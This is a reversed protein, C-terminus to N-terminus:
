QKTHLFSEKREKWEQIGAKRSRCFQTSVHQLDYVVNQLKAHNLKRVSSNTLFKDLLAIDSCM